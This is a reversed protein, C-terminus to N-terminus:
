KLDKSLYNYLDDVNNFCYEKDNDTITFHKEGCDNEWIFWSITNSKDNMLKELHLTQGYNVEMLANVIQSDLAFGFELMTNICNDLKIINNYVEEFEKKELM